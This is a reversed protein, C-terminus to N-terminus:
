RNMKEMDNLQGTSIMKVVYRIDEQLLTNIQHNDEIFRLILVCKEQPNLWKLENLHMNEYAANIGRQELKQFLTTGKRAIIIIKFIRRIVHQSRDEVEDGLDSALELVALVVYAMLMVAEVMNIYFPESNTIGINLGVIIVDCIYIIVAVLQLCDLAM